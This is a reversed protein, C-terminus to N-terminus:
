RRLKSNLKGLYGILCYRVSDKLVRLNLMILVLKSVIGLVMLLDIVISSIVVKLLSILLLFKIEMVCFVYSSGYKMVRIVNGFGILM